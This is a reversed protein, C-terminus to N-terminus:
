LHVFFGKFMLDLEDTTDLDGVNEYLNVDMLRADDRAAIRIIQPYVGFCELSEEVSKICAQNRNYVAILLVLVSTV